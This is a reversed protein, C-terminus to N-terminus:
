EKLYVETVPLQQKEISGDIPESGNSSLNLRAVSTIASRIDSPLLIVIRKSTIRTHFAELRLPGPMSGTINLDGPVSVGERRQTHAFGSAVRQPGVHGDRAGEGGGRGEQVLDVLRADVRGDRIEHANLRVARVALPKAIATITNM